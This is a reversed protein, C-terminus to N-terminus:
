RPRKNNAARQRSGQGLKPAVFRFSSSSSCWLSPSDLPPPNRGAHALTRRAFAINRMTYNKDRRVARAPSGMQKDALRRRTREVTEETRTPGNAGAALEVAASSRRKVANARGNAPSPAILVASRRSSDGAVITTSPTGCTDTIVATNMPAVASPPSVNAVGGGVSAGVGSPTKRISRITM